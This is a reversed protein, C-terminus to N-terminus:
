YWLFSNVADKPFMALHDRCHLWLTSSICHMVKAPNVLSLGSSPAVSFLFYM